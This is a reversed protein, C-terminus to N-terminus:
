NLIIENDKIKQIKLRYLASDVTGKSIGLLQAIQYNSPDTSKKALRKRIDTLRDWGRKLRDKVRQAAIGNEPMDKLRKEYFLCRCLQFNAKEQLIVRCKERKERLNKLFSVMRNLEEPHIGLRLAARQIFDDSIYYCCKLILILLQRPNALITKPEEEMLAYEPPDEFAYMEPFVSMWAASEALYTRFKTARFEKATMRVLAGIYTEFSSGTERYTGIAHSIRPYLWSLFEDDDERDWNTLHFTYDKIIKFIEGELKKKELLGASYEAYFGNLSVTNEM